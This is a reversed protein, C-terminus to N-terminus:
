ESGEELTMLLKAYTGGTALVWSTSPIVLQASELKPEVIAIGVEEEDRWIMPIVPVGTIQDPVGSSGMQRDGSPVSAAMMPPGQPSPKPCHEASGLVFM